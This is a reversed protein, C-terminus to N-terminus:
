RGAGAWFAPMAYGVNRKTAPTGYTKKSHSLGADVVAAAVTVTLPIPDIVTISVGLEQRLHRRIAEACGFFGTCGLVIAHADEEVVARRSAHALKAHLSGPDKEIELVPTNVVEISALRDSVGYMRALNSFLPKVSDLVTVISFREGLAAALHMSTEAPGLVPISVAERCAKLGPDGMCDIVVASVGEREAEMAKRVTDPVCLMEDFECEISPPGSDIETHSFELDPREFPLVDDLKRFGKTTIPTILRIHKKM